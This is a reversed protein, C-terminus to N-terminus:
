LFHVQNVRVWKPSAAMLNSSFTSKGAGPAGCLVQILESETFENSLIPYYSLIRIAEVM